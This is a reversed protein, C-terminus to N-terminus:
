AKWFCQETNRRPILTKLQKNRGQTKLSCKNVKNIKEKSM